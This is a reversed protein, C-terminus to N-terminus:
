VNSCTLHEIQFSGLLHVIFRVYSINIYPVRPLAKVTLVRPVSAVFCLPLLPLEVCFVGCTAHTTHKSHRLSSHKGGTDKCYSPHPIHAQILYGRRHRKKNPKPIPGINVLKWIHPIINKNLATEFM